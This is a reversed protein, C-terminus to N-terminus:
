KAIVDNMMEKLRVSLRGMEQGEEKRDDKSLLITYMTQICAWRFAHSLLIEAKVVTIEFRKKFKDKRKLMEDVYLRLIEPTYERRDETNMNKGLMTAIDILPNGIKFTAWDLIALLDFRGENDEFIMNGSWLDCHVPVPSIGEVAEPIETQIAFLSETEAWERLCTKGEESMWRIKDLKRTSRRADYEVLERGISFEEDTCLYARQYAAISIVVQFVVYPQYGILYDPQCGLRNSLDNFILIGPENDCRTGGYFQLLCSIDDPDFTDELKVKDIRSYFELERNHLMNLAADQNADTIKVAFTRGDELSVRHIASNYGRKLGIQTFEVAEKNPVLIKFEGLVKIILDKLEETLVDFKMA